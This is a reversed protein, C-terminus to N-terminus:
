SDTASTYADEETKIATDLAKSLVDATTYVPQPQPSTCGGMKRAEWLEEPPPGINDLSVYCLFQSIIKHLTTSNRMGKSLEM